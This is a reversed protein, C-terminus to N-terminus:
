IGPGTEARREDRGFGFRIGARTEMMAGFPEVLVPRVLGREPDELVLVRNPGFTGGVVHFRSMKVSSPPPILPYEDSM